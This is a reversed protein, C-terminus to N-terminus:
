VYSKFDDRINYLVTYGILLSVMGDIKDARAGKIPQIENNIEDVKCQTNSLCWKLIPNNNYNIFKGQLEVKLSKMPASLTKKGQRIIKFTDKGFEDSLKQIFDNSCHWQDYGGAYIYIDQENQIELFWDLIVNFNVREEEVVRLLGQEKWISYPVKGTKVRQEFTAKPIWYMQHAFIEESNKKMMLITASCLDDIEGGDFSAICYSGKFDEINFTNKNELDSWRLWSSVPNEKLNFEKVMVTPLFSPDNKAKQVVQRMYDLSKITGLGPNAKIWCEEKDWEMRDDLEYIFPLFRKDKITGDLVGTAYEYQADFINDRVFGNTSITFLLPQRRAGMSQKVLDYLDRKVIASLEDITAFSTNLGDLSSSNSALAKIFGMNKEFYLDSARKRIYKSLLTSQKVMKLAVNFGLKAQDLKTALNYIQPSFEFDNMLMDLEIGGTITTKGNKRGLVTLVEQYQRLGEDDVFGFIAQLQAKQFPELKLKVGAKGDPLCLFTEMFDIHRNATEIDFHFGDKVKGELKDQLMQCVQKIKKCSNIKGTLIDRCYEKLYNKTM